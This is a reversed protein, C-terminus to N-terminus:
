GAKGKFVPTWHLQDDELSVTYQQGQIIFIDEMQLYPLVSAEDTGEAM